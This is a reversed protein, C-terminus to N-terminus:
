NDRTLVAKDIGDLARLLERDKAARARRAAGDIAPLRADHEHDGLQTAVVPDFATLADIYDRGIAAFAANPDERAALTSPPAAPIITCGALLLSAAWVISRKAM